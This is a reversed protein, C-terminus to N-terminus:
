TRASEPSGGQIEEHYRPEDLAKPVGVARAARVDTFRIQENFQEKCEWFGPKKLYQQWPMDYLSKQFEPAFIANHRNKVITLSILKNIFKRSM